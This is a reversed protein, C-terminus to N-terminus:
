SFFTLPAADANKCVPFTDGITTEDAECDLGAEGRVDAFVVAELTCDVGVVTFLMLSSSGGGDDDEEPVCCDMRMGLGLPDPGGRMRGKDPDEMVDDEDEGVDAAIAEAFSM